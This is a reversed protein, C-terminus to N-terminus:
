EGTKLTDLLDELDQIHRDEVGAGHIAGKLGGVAAKLADGYHAWLFDLVGPVTAKVIQQVYAGSPGLSPMAQAGEPVDATDELRAKVGPLISKAIETHKDSM